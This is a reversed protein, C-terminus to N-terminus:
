GRYRFNFWQSFDYSNVVFSKFPIAENTRGPLRVNVTRTRMSHTFKAFHTQLFHKDSMNLVNLYILRILLFGKGTEVVKAGDMWQSMREQWTGALWHRSATWSKQSGLAEVFTCGALEWTPNFSYSEKSSTTYGGLFSLQRHFSKQLTSMKHNKPTGHPALNAVYQGPTSKPILTVFLDCATANAGHRRWLNFQHDAPENGNASGFISSLAVM